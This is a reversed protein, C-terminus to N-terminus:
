TAAAAVKGERAVIVAVGSLTLLGGVVMRWDLV